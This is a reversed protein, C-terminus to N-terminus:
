GGVGPARAACARYVATIADLSPWVSHEFPQPSFRFVLIAKKQGECSRADARINLTLEGKTLRTDQFTTTGEFSEYSTNKAGRAVDTKATGALKADPGGMLGEFYLSLNQEIFEPSIAGEHQISWAFAYTWFEESASNSWGATFRAEEHGVLEMAPAFPPPIPFFESKWDSVLLQGEAHPLEAHAQSDPSAESVEPAESAASGSAESPASEPPASAGCGLAFLSGLLCTRPLSSM